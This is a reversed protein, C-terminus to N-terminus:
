NEEFLSKMRARWNRLEENENELVIVRERLEINELEINEWEDQVERLKIYMTKESEKSMSERVRKQAAKILVKGKGAKKLELADPIIARIFANVNQITPHNKRLWDIVMQPENVQIKDAFVASALEPINLMVIKEAGHYTGKGITFISDEEDIYNQRGDFYCGFSNFLRARETGTLHRDYASKALLLVIHTRKISEDTVCEYINDAMINGSHYFREALSVPHTM